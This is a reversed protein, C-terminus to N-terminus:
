TTFWLPAQQPAAIDEFTDRCPSERDPQRLAAAVRTEDIGAACCDRVMAMMSRNIVARGFGNLSEEYKRHL